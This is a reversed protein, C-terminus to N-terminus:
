ILIFAIPVSPGRNSQLTRPQTHTGFCHTFFDHRFRLALAFGSDQRYFHWAIDHVVCDHNTSYQTHNQFLLMVPAKSTPDVYGHIANKELSIQHNGSWNEPIAAPQVFSRWLDSAFRSRHPPCRSRSPTYQYSKSSKFTSM